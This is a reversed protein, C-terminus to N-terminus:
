GGNEIFSKIKKIENDHLPLFAHPSDLVIEIGDYGIKSISEIADSMSFKTFANSSFGCKM